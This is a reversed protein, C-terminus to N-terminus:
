SHSLAPWSLHELPSMANTITSQFSLTPKPVTQEFIHHSFVAKTFAFTITLFQYIEPIGIVVGNIACQKLVSDTSHGTPNWNIPLQRKFTCLLLPASFPVSSIMVQKHRTVLSFQEVDYWLPGQQHNCIIRRHPAIPGKNVPFLLKISPIPHLEMEGPISPLPPPTAHSASTSM